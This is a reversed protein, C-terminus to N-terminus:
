PIKLLNKPGLENFHGSVKKTQQCTARGMELPPTPNIEKYTM